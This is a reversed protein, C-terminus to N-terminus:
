SEAGVGSRSRVALEKYKVESHPDRTFVSGLYTLLFGIPVCVIGPNALPFVANKGM